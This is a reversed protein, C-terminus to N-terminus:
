EPTVTVTVDPKDVSKEVPEESRSRQSAMVDSFNLRAFTESARLYEAPSSWNSPVIRDFMQQPTLARQAPSKIEKIRALAARAVSDSQAQEFIMIDNMPWGSANLLFKKGSFQDVPLVDIDGAANKAAIPDLSYVVKSVRSKKDREVDVHFLSQFPFGNYIKRKKM